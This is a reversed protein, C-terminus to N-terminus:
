ILGWAPDDVEVDWNLRIDAAYDAFTYTFSGIDHGGKMSVPEDKGDALYINYWYGTGNNDFHYAQVMRDYTLGSGLIGPAAYEAYWNGVIPNAQEEEDEHCGAVLVMATMLLASFLFKNKM